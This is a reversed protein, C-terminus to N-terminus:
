IKNLLLLFSAGGFGGGAVAGFDTGSTFTMLLEISLWLVIEDSIIGGYGPILNFTLMLIMVRLGSVVGMLGSRRESWGRRNMHGNQNIRQPGDRDLYLSGVSGCFACWIIASCANQEGIARALSLAYQYFSVYVFILHTTSSHFVANTLLTFPRQLTLNTLGLIWQHTAPFLLYIAHVLLPTSLIVQFPTAPWYSLVQAWVRELTTSISASEFSSIISPYETLLCQPGSLGGPCLCIGSAVCIGSGCGGQCRPSLQAVLRDALNLTSQIPLKFWRGLVGLFIDGTSAITVTSFLLYDSYDKPSFWTAASRIWGDDTPASFTAFSPRSAILVGAVLAVLFWQREEM